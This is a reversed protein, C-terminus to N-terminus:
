ENQSFFFKKNVLLNQLSKQRLIPFLHRIISTLYIDNKYLDDRPASFFRLVAERPTFGRSLAYVMFVCWLGCNTSLDSQLRHSLSKIPKGYKKAAKLILPYNHLDGAASDIIWTERPNVRSLILWHEGDTM